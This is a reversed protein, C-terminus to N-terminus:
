GNNGGTECVIDTWEHEAVDHILEIISYFKGGYEVRMATTIGVPKYKIRFSYATPSAPIGREAARVSSMGTKGRVKAWPTFKPTWVEVPQNAADKAVGPEAIVIKRNYEGAARSM